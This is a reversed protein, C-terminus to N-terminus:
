MKCRQQSTDIAEGEDLPMEQRTGIGHDEYSTTYM